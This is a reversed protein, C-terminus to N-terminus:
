SGNEESSIVVMQSIESVETVIDPLKRVQLPWLKCSPLAACTLTVPEVWAFEIATLSELIMKKSEDTVIRADIGKKARRLL